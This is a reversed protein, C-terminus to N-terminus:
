KLCPNLIRTGDPNQICTFKNGNLDEHIVEKPKENMELVGSEALKLQITQYHRIQGDKKNAVAWIDNAFGGYVTVYIVIGLGHLTEVEIPDKPQFTHM